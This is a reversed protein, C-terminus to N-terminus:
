KKDPEGTDNAKDGANNEAKEAEAATQDSSVTDAPAAESAVAEEDEGADEQDAESLIESVRVCFCDNLVLVEGRAVLRENVWIDVPDGALKDLEVVSGESLRLVDEVVMNARGLEVKVNLEVDHLLHIGTSEVDALVQQFNPLDINNGSLEGAEATPDGGSSQGEAQDTKDSAVEDSISDVADAADALAQEAMQGADASQRTSEARDPAPSPDTQAQDKSPDKDAM